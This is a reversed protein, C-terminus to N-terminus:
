TYQWHICKISEYLDNNIVAKLEREEFIKNQTENMAKKLASTCVDKKCYSWKPPFEKDLNKISMEAEKKKCNPCLWICECLQYKKNQMQEFESSTKVNEGLTYEECCIPCTITSEM